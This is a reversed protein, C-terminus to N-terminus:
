FQFNVKLCIMLSYNVNDDARGVARKCSLWLSRVPLGLRFYPESKPFNRSPRLSVYDRMDSAVEQLVM